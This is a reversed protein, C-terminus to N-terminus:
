RSERCIVRESKSWRSVKWIIQFNQLNEMDDQYEESWKSMKQIWLIEINESCGNLSPTLFLPYKVTLSVTLM